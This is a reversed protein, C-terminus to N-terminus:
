RWCLCIIVPLRGQREALSGFIIGGFFQGGFGWFPLWSAQLDTLGWHPKILPLLYAIVVSDWSDFLMLLGLLLPIKARLSWTGEGDLTQGVWSNTSSQM